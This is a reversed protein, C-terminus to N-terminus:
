AAKQKTERFFRSAVLALTAVSVILVAWLVIQKWPVPTPAPKLADAGGLTRRDGLTASRVQTERARQNLTSLLQDVPADAPGVRASGYALTYPASGQAVFLLEHPHWGVKLRPARNPKWGGERTTEVDWYRESARVIHAYPNHISGNAEQLVYFLGTHRTVWPSTAEARSRITVSAADTPDVFEIDVYEVPLFAKTDYQADGSPGFRETTLTRWRIERETAETRPQVRVSKLTVAALERPWSVRLYKAREGPLAIENQTLTFTDRQLQAIASSSVVTRWANLDDSASVTVSALFTVGPAADWTLGIKALPEKVGSADILYATTARAASRDKTVELVAGDAGIKVHTRAPSGSPAEAMAFSPVNRWEADPGVTRPVQRLTHPVADGAANLVRMDALDARTSTDYVDDPLLVRYLSGGGDTRIDIGRVFDTRSAQAALTGSVGFLMILVLPSLRPYGRSNADDKTRPVQHKTRGQDLTRGGDMTRGEDMTPPDESGGHQALKTVGRKGRRPGHVLFCVVSWPGLVVSWPRARMM